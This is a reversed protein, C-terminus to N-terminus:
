FALGVRVGTENTDHGPNYEKWTSFRGDRWGSYSKKESNGIKWYRYYPEVFLIVPGFDKELKLGLNYGYGYEPSYSGSLDGGYNKSRGFVMFDFETNASISWGYGPKVKWDSGLFMYFNNFTRKIDTERDKSDEFARYGLGVYPSIFLSSKGRINGERGAAFSFDTYKMSEGGQKFGGTKSDLDDGSMHTLRVRLADMKSKYQVAFGQMQGSYKRARENLEFNNM